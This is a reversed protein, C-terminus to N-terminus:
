FVLYRHGFTIRGEPQNHMLVSFWKFMYYNNRVAIHQSAALSLALSTLVISWGLCNGGRKHRKMRSCVERSEGGTTWGKQKCSNILLCNYPWMLLQFKYMLCRRLKDLHFQQTNCIQQANIGTGFYKGIKIDEFPAVMVKTDYRFLM